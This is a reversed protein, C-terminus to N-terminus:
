DFDHLEIESQIHIHASFFFLLSFVFVSFRVDHPMEVVVAVAMVKKNSVYLSLRNRVACM